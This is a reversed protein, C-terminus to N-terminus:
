GDTFDLALVSKPRRRPFIPILVVYIVKRMDGIYERHLIARTFKVRGELKPLSNHRSYLIIQLLEAILFCNGLHHNIRVLPAHM